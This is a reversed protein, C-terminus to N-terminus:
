NPQGRGGRAATPDAAGDRAEAAAKLGAMTGPLGRRVTGGILRRFLPALAGEFRVAHTVRCGSASPELAHEFVMRCLPLRAVATFARPPEVKRLAIRTRPAGRPKITGIGGAAFAGELSAAEIDPDWRPWGSPDAWLGFVREPSAAIDISQQM